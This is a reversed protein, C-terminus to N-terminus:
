RLSLVALLTVLISRWLRSSCTGRPFAGWLGEALNRRILVKKKQIVQSWGRVRLPRQALGLERLCAFWNAQKLLCLQFPEDRCSPDRLPASVPGDPPEPSSSLNPTSLLVAGLSCPTINSCAKFTERSERVGKRRNMKHAIYIRLWWWVYETIKWKSFYSKCQM